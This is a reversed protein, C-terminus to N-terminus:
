VTFKAQWNLREDANGTIDQLIDDINIFVKWVELNTESAIKEAILSELESVRKGKWCNDALSVLLDELTLSKDKNWTKHTEAFRALKKDIGNELLLKKGASEHINGPESLESPYLSKGIDHTAAGFYVSEADFSLNPFAVKIKEILQVAVDHVLTLHAILRPPANVSILLLEVQKPLSRM